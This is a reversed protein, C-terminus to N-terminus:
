SGMRGFRRWRITPFNWRSPRTDRTLQAAGLREAWDRLARGAPRPRGAAGAQERLADLSLGGVLRLLEEAMTELRAVRPRSKVLFYTARRASVVTALLGPWFGGLYAAMLISPFFAM